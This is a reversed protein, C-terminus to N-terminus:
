NEEFISEILKQSFPLKRKDGTSQYKLRQYRLVAVILCFIFLIRMTYLITRIGCYQGDVSFIKSNRQLCQLKITDCLSGDYLLTLDLNKPTKLQLKSM